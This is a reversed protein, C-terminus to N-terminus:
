LLPEKNKIRKHICVTVLQVILFLLSSLSNSLIHISISNCTFTTNCSNVDISVKGGIETDYSLRTELAALLVMTDCWKGLILRLYELLDKFLEFYDHRNINM